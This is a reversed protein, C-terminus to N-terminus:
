LTASLALMVPLYVSLLNRLSKISQHFLNRAVQYNINMVESVEEYSLGQYIKLYVIEKQRVPLKNIATIVRETKEKELEKHIIFHDHSIEFRMNDDLDAHGTSHRTRFHRFLKFKLSKLLYAKVSQVITTSRSQWLELFLDQITDNVIERDDCIRTGYQLLVPYFRRFLEDFASPDGDRFATWCQIDTQTRNM